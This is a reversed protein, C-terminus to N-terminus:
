RWGGVYPKANEPRLSALAQAATGPPVEAQGFWLQYWIAEPLDGTEAIIRQACAVRQAWTQLPLSSTLIQDAPTM